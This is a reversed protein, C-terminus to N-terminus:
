GQEPVAFRAEALDLERELMRMVEDNIKNENRLHLVTARQIAGIQQSLERWRQYADPRSGSQRDPDSELANLRRRHVRILEDYVDVWEPDAQERCEELYALAAEVMARRAEEEETNQGATGALGLRRIL